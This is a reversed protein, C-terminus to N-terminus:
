KGPAKPSLAAIMKDLNPKTDNFWDSPGGDEKNPVKAQQFATFCLDIIRPNRGDCGNATDCLYAWQERAEEVERTREALSTHLRRILNADRELEDGWKKRDTARLQAADRLLEAVAEAVEEDRPPATLFAIHQLLDSVARSYARLSFGDALIVREADLREIEKLREPLLAQPQPSASVTSDTKKPAQTM